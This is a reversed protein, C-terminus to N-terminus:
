SGLRFSASVWPWIQAPDRSRDSARRPRGPDVAAGRAHLAAQFRGVAHGDPRPDRLSVGASRFSAAVRHDYARGGREQLREGGGRARHHQQDPQLSARAGPRLYGGAPEANRREPARHARGSRSQRLAREARGDPPHGAGRLGRCRSQRAQGRRRLRKRDRLPRAAYLLGLFGALVFSCPHEQSLLALTQLQAGGRAADLTAWTDADDCLVVVQKGKPRDALRELLIDLLREGPMGLADALATTLDGDALSLYHCEVTPHARFRRHIEDLLSTKGIGHPGIILYNRRRDSALRRLESKRGHFPRRQGGLVASRYLSVATRDVQESVVQAFALAPQAARLVRNM